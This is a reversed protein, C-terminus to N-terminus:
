PQEILCGEAEWFATLEAILRQLTLAGSRKSLSDVFHADHQM